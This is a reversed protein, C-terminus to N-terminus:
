FKSILKLSEKILDAIDMGPKFAKRAARMAESRSYGLAVLADAAEDLIGGGEVKPLDERLEAVIREATKKGIGPISSLSEVDGGSVMEVFKSVEVSSLVKLALKPGVKSVKMLKEFVRRKIEDSFGFIRIEDGFVVVTKLEVEEGEEIGSITGLDSFVILSVPGVNVVIRDDEIKEVRGRISDIM